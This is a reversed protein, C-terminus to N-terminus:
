VGGPCARCRRSGTMTHIWPPANVDPEPEPYLPDIMAAFPLTM